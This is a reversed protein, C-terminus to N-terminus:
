TIPMGAYQHNLFGFSGSDELEAIVDSIETRKRHEPLREKPEHFIDKKYRITGGGTFARIVDNGYFYFISVSDVKEVWYRELEEKIPIGSGPWYLEEDAKTM